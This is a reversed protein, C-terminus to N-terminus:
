TSAPARAPAVAISPYPTTVAFTDAALVAPALGSLVLASVALAIAPRRVRATLSTPM